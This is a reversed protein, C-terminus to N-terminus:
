RYRELEELADMSYNLLPVSVTGYDNDTSRDQKEEEFLGRFIVRKPWRKVDKENVFLELKGIAITAPASLYLSSLGLSNRARPRIDPDTAADCGEPLGTTM